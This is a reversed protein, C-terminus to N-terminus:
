KDHQEKDTNHTHFQPQSKDPKQNLTHELYYPCDDPITEMLYKPCKKKRRKAIHWLSEFPAGWGEEGGDRKYHKKCIDKPKM